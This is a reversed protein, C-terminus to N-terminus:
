EAPFRENVSRTNPKAPGNIWVREPLRQRRPPRAFREPHAAYAHLMVQYRHELVEEARGSHVTAPTLMCIGSHRHENNYWHVFDRSFLRAHEVSGFREPFEPRYKLTKFQAESYPNDNSVHPRSHTKAVDLDILLQAVTKSTMASGRDMHIALQGPEIGEKECTAAILEEALAASERHAVTWGTAKRSFIDLIMYLCYYNWKGPGKLKTIDWSWVQNPREAVLEPAAYHGHRAFARRERVEGAQELLRYMTRESCLYKGDDLLTAVIEAPAMDVFQESHLLALVQEVEEPTLAWPVVRATRAAQPPKPRRLRYVTARSVGLVTCAVLTGVAPTLEEAAALM